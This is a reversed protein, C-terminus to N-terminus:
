KHQMNCAFSATFGQVAAGHRSDHECGTQHSHWAASGSAGRSILKQVRLASGPSAQWSSSEGLRPSPGVLAAAGASQGRRPALDM